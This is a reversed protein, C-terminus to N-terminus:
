LQHLARFATFTSQCLRLHVYHFYTSRILKYRPIIIIQSIQPSDNRLVEFMNQFVLLTTFITNHTTSIHSRFLFLFNLICNINKMSLSEAEM